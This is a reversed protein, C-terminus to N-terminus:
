LSHFLEPPLLVPSRATAVVACRAGLVGQGKRPVVVGDGCSPGLFYLADCVPSTCRVRDKMPANSLLSVGQIFEGFTLKGDHNSDFLAFIRDVFRSPARSFGLARQLERGGGVCWCGGCALPLAVARSVNEGWM